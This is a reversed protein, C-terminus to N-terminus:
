ALVTILIIAIAIFHESRAQREARKEEMYEDHVRKRDYYAQVADVTNNIYKSRADERVSLAEANLLNAEGQDRVLAGLGRAWSEGATSSHYRPGWEYRQASADQNVLGGALFLIGDM